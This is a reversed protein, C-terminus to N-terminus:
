LRSYEYFVKNLDRGVNKFDNAGPIKKLSGIWHANLEYVVADIGFRRRLGDNFQFKEASEPRESTTTTFKLKESFSTFRHMLDELARIRKMFDLDVDSVQGVLLGGYSDNHLDIALRPKLGKNVLDKIFSELADNEPCLGADPASGWNRNLDMGAVTFRTM